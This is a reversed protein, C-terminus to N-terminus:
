LFVAMAWVPTSQFEILLYLYIETGDTTPLRWIVDGERRLGQRSHFKANVLEMRAFDLGVAMAEPVFGRVLHEVLLPHTFLRHYLSDSGAM